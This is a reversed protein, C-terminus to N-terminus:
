INPLTKAGKFIEKLPLGKKYRNYLIYYSVGTIQSWDSLPLKKDGYELMITNRRNNAQTKMSVWRCNSPEYNGNNDVRDITCDGQKANEDYGNQYAWSKFALYNNEWEDCM